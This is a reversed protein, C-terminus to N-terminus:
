THKCLWQRKARRICVRRDYAVQLLGRPSHDVFLDDSAFLYYLSVLNVNKYLTVHPINELDM